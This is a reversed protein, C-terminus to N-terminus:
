KQKLLLWNLIISQCNRLRIFKNLVQTKTDMFYWFNIYDIFILNEYKLDKLYYKKTKFIEVM